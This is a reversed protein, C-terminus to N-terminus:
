AVTARPANAGDDGRSALDIWRAWAQRAADDAARKWALGARLLAGGLELTRPDRVISASWRSAAQEWAALSERALQEAPNSM